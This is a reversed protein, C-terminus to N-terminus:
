ECRRGGESAAELGDSFGEHYQCLWAGSHNGGTNIQCGCGYVTIATGSDKTHPRVKPVGQALWSEMLLADPTM